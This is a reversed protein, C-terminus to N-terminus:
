LIIFIDFVVVDDCILQNQVNDIHIHHFPHYVWNWQERRTHFVFGDMRDVVILQINNLSLILIYSVIVLYDNLSDYKLSVM